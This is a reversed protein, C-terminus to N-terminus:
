GREALVGGFIAVM